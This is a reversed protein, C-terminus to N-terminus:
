CRLFWGAPAIDGFEFAVLGLHGIGACRRFQDDDVVGANRISQAALTDALRQGHVGDFFGALTAPLDNGSQGNKLACDSRWSSHRSTTLPQPVGSFALLWTHRVARGGHM